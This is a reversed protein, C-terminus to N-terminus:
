PNRYSNTAQPWLCSRFLAVARRTSDRRSRGLGPGADETIEAPDALWAVAPWLPAGVVPRPSVASVIRSPVM